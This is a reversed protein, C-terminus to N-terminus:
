GLFGKLLDGQGGKMAKKGLELAVDPYSTLAQKFADEPKAGGKIATAVSLVAEQLREEKARRADVAGPSNIRNHLRQIASECSALRGEKFQDALLGAILGGIVSGVFILVAAGGYILWTEVM